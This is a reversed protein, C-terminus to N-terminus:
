PATLSELTKLEVRVAGVLKLDVRYQARLFDEAALCGGWAKALITFPHALQWSPNSLPVIYAVIYIM